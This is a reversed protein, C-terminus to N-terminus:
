GSSLLLDVHNTDPRFGQDLEHVATEVQAGRLHLTCYIHGDVLELVSEFLSSLVLQALLLYSGEHIDACVDCRARRDHRGGAYHSVSASLFCETGGVPKGPLPMM